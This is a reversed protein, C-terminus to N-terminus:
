CGGNAPGFTFVFEFDVKEGNSTEAPAWQGPINKILEFLKEDISPYGTTMADHKVKSVRGEKTIIFSIKIPGLKDDNVVQMSEKSNNRLYNILADKGNLYMAPQEPVVTLHPGFFREDKEFDKRVKVKFDTRVTFHSFYDTARLLKLQADTLQDKTGYEQLHSQQNNKIMIVKVTNIRAIQQAEEETIFDYITTANHVDAKTIPEFRTDVGYSLEPITKNFLNMNQDEIQLDKSALKGEESSESYSWDTFGLISVSLLLLVASILIVSKKM